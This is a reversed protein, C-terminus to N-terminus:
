LLRWRDTRISAKHQEDHLKGEDIGNEHCKCQFLCGADREGVSLGLFVFDCTGLEAWDIRGNIGILATLKATLDRFALGFVLLLVFNYVGPESRNVRGDIRILATVDVCIKQFTFICISGQFLRVDICVYLLLIDGMILAKLLVDESFM